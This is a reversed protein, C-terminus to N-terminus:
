GLGIFTITNVSLLHDQPGGDYRNKDHDGTGTVINDNACWRDPRDFSTNQTLFYNKTLYFSALALSVTGWRGHRDGDDWPRWPAESGARGCIVILWCEPCSNYAGAGSTPCWPPWQRGNQDRRMSLRQPNNHFVEKEARPCIQGRQRDRDWNKRLGVSWGVSWGVSGVSQGVVGGVVSVSWRGVVLLGWRGVAVVSGGGSRGVGGVGCVLRVSGRCCM